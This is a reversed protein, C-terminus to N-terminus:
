DAAIGNLSNYYISKKYLVMYKIQSKQIIGFSAKTSDTSRNYNDGMLFLEGKELVKTHNQNYEFAETYDYVIVVNEGNKKHVIIQSGSKEVSDGEMAVITKVAFYPEAKEDRINALVINGYHLKVKSTVTVNEGPQLTELMSIGEIQVTMQFKKEYIGYLVSFMVIFAMFAIGITLVTIRVLTYKEGRTLMKEYEYNKM